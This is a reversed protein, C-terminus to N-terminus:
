KIKERDKELNLDPELYLDPQEMVLPIKYKEKRFHEKINDLMPQNYIVAKGETLKTVVTTKPLVTQLKEAGTQSVIYTYCIILQTIGLDNLYPLVNLLKKEYISLLPIQVSVKMQHKVAKMKHLTEQSFDTAVLNFRLEDIGYRVLKTLILPTLQSASTYIIAYGKYGLEKYVKMYAEICPLYFLPDGRGSFIFFKSAEATGFHRKIEFKWEDKFKWERPFWNFGKENFLDNRKDTYRNKLNTSTYDDHCGLCNKDCINPLDVDDGFSVVWKITNM